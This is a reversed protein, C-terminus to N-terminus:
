KSKWILAGIIGGIGTSIALLAWYIIKLERLIQELLEIEM